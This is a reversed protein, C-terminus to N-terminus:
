SPDAEVLFSSIKSFPTEGTELLLHGHNAMLVFAYLRFDHREKYRLLIDLYQQFDEEEKFINQQRNGRTIVHYLAGPYEIGPKRPMVICWCGEASLDISL